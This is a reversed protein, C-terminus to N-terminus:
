GLAAFLCQRMHGAYAGCICFGGTGLGHGNLGIEGQFRSEGCIIGFGAVVLLTM